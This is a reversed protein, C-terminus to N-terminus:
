IRKAGEILTNFEDDTLRYNKYSEYANNIRELLAALSNDIVISKETLDIDFVKKLNCLIDSAKDGTADTSGYIWDLSVHFKKRLEIAVDLSLNKNGTEIGTIM